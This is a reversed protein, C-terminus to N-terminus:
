PKGIQLPRRDPPGPIEDTPLIQCPDKPHFQGCQYEGRVPIGWYACCEGTRRETRLHSCFLCVRRADLERWCALWPHLHGRDGCQWCPAAVVAPRDLGPLDLQEPPIM